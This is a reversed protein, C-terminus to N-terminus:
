CNSTCNRPSNRPVTPAASGATSGVCGPAPAPTLISLIKVERYNSPWSFAAKSRRLLRCSHCHLHTLLSAFLEPPLGGFRLPPPLILGFRLFQRILTVQKCLEDRCLLVRR